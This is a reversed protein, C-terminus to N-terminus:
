RDYPGERPRNYINLGAVDGVCKRILTRVSLLVVVSGAATMFSGTCWRHQTWGIRNQARWSSAYRRLLVSEAYELLMFDVTDM